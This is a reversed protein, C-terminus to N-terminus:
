SSPKGHTHASYLAPPTLGERGSSSYLDLEPRSPDSGTVGGRFSSSSPRCRAPSGCPAPRACSSSARRGCAGRRWACCWRAGMGGAWLRPRPRMSGVSARVPARRPDTRRGQDLRGIGRGDRPVPDAPPESPEIGLDIAVTHGHNARIRGAGDCAFRQKDSAGRVSLILDHTLQVGHAGAREVLEDIELGGRPMSRSASVRRSM